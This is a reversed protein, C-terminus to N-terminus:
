RDAVVRNRGADKAQYLLRDVRRHLSEVSDDQRLETVGFSATVTVPVSCPMGAIALRLAEALHLAQDLGTAPCLVMFEEGGWRGCVDTERTRETLLLAVERLLRDGAQHGLSDNVQKFHDLDLMILSTPTGYRQLRGAERGIEDELHRRNSLGTLEDTVALRQLQRERARLEGTKRDVLDLARLRQVRMSVVYGVLLLTILSGAVAVPIWVPRTHTEAYGMAPRIELEYVHDAIHVTERQALHRTPAPRGSELVTLSPAIEPRYILTVALESRELNDLGVLGAFDIASLVLGRVAFGSDPDRPEGQFVPALMTIGWRSDDEGTVLPLPETASVQRYEIARQLTRQRRPEVMMDLGVPPNQLISSAIHILPFYLPREPAPRAVPGDAPDIITINRGYDQSLEEELAGRYAFEVPIVWGLALANDLFPRTLRRFQEPDDRGTEILIAQLVSLDRLKTAITQNVSSIVATADRLFAQQLRGEEARQFLMAVAITLAMGLILVLLVDMGLRVALLPRHTRASRSKM